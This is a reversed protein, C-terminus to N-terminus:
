FSRIVSNNKTFYDVGSLVTLILCVYVFVESIPFVTILAIYDKAMLFIVAIIQSVTKLKGFNSASIIVRQSAAISRLGTVAFERALIIFVIWSSIRGLEVLSVFAGTILLKDALPDIFKGFDTVLNYKRAIYGDLKDTISAIVFIFLAVEMNYPIQIFMFFMYIPILLIRLITIKNAINMQINERYIM